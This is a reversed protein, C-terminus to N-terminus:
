DNKSIFIFLSHFNEDCPEDLNFTYADNDSEIVPNNMSSSDTSPNINAELDLSPSLWSASMCSWFEKCLIM